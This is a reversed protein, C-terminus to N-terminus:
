DASQISASTKEEDDKIADVVILLALLEEEFSEDYVTIEYTDGWSLWAKEIHGVVTGQSEVDFDLDWFNGKLKLDYDDSILDIDKKFFTFNQKIFFSKGDSFSVVYQPMFTFIKKELVFSKSGDCKTVTVRNGIFKFDQDVYYVEKGAEDLVSYHDTIKFVKQKIYLKYM